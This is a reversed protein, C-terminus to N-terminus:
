GRFTLGLSRYVAKEAGRALSSSFQHYPGIQPQSSKPGGGYAPPSVHRAPKSGLLRLPQHVVAQGLVGYRRWGGSARRAGPPPTESPKILARTTWLTGAGGASLRGHLFQTPHSSTRPRLRMKTLTMATLMSMTMTVTTTM